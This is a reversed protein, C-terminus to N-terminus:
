TQPIPTVITPPNPNSTTCSAVHPLSPHFSLASLIESHHTYPSHQIYSPVHIRATNRKMHSMGLQTRVDEMLRAADQLQLHLQARESRLRGVEVAELGLGLGSGLGATDAHQGNTSTSAPRPGTSAAPPQSPGPSLTDGSLLSADTVTAADTVTPNSGTTRLLSHMVRGLTDM